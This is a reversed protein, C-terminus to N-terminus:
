SLLSWMGFSSGQLWVRHRFQKSRIADVATWYEFWFWVVEAAAAAAAAEVCLGFKNADNFRVDVNADLEDDADM